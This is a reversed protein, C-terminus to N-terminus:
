GLLVEPTQQEHEVVGNLSKTSWTEIIKDRAGEVVKMNQHELLKSFVHQLVVKDSASTSSMAVTFLPWTLTSMTGSLVCVRLLSDLAARQTATVHEQNASPVHLGTYLTLLGGYKYTQAIQIMAEEHADYGSNSLNISWSLFNQELILAESTVDEGHKRRALLTALNHMIPWISGMLGFTEDVQATDISNPLCPLLPCEHLSLAVMVDFYQFAKLLFRFRSEEPQMLNTKSELIAKAGQLHWRATQM